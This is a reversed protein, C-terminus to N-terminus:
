LRNMSVRAWAGRCIVARWDAFLTEARRFFLEMYSDVFTRRGPRCGKSLCHSAQGQRIHQPELRNPHPPTMAYRPQAAGSDGHAGHITGTPTQLRLRRRALNVLKGDDLFLTYQRAVRRAAFSSRAASAEGRPEIPEGRPACQGRVREPREALGLM